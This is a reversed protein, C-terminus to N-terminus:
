NFSKLQLRRLTKSITELLLDSTDPHYIKQIFGLTKIEYTNLDSIILNGSPINLKAVEQLVEKKIDHPSSLIIFCYRSLTETKIFYPLSTFDQELAELLLLFLTKLVETDLISQMFAPKLSYFFNELLFDNEKGVERLMERLANLAENQKVIMGGNFDRFEGLAQMLMQVISYRAKQLDLSFDKRFFPQKQLALHFVSVEKPYKKKIMGIEKIEDISFKLSAKKLLEKLSLSDDKIIRSLIVQFFLEEDTQRDYSIIVQPLDRVFKLQKSLLIINRMLEEENRPMFIPHIVNEMRSLLEKPLQRKLRKVDEFSLDSKEIELYFSRIKEENKEKVYSDKVYQSGPLIAQIADLIHKKEFREMERLFNMTILIGVVKSSSSFLYTKLLKISIHREEPEREVNAQVNKKFLYQYAIVRSVHRPDRSATFKDRFLSMFNRIEFFVDRDFAKPRTNLLHSINEKVQQFKDEASLKILFQQMQDHINSDNVRESGHMLSAIHEQIMITKQELSLSKLSVIYRAHYVALINIRIENLLKPLSKKAIEIELPDSLQIMQEFLFLPQRDYKLFRFSLSRGGVLLLQKGPILWRSLMDSLYRGVGGTYEAQCLTSISLTCPAGELRTHKFLPLLKCLEALLIRLKKEDRAKLLDKRIDLPLITDILNEVSALFLEFSDDKPYAFNPKIRLPHNGVFYPKRQLNKLDVLEISM